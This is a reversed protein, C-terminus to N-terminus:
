DKDLSVLELFSEVSLSAGGVLAGDINPKDMLQRINDPKVSGGYLIRLHSALESSKNKKVWERIFVHVEEAQEPTAVQGTGIAWVPEYALVLNQGTFNLSGLGEALQKEIVALTKEAKREDLTEGICYIPILGSKLAAALKKNLIDNTELFYQRRESHGIIVYKCELESLFAPSIEGTFAGSEEWHCNQAGLVVRNQESLAVSVTYLSTAPPCIVIDPKVHNPLARLFRMVFKLSDEIGLNMKWNGALLPKRM